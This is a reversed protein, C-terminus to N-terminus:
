LAKFGTGILLLGLRQELRRQDMLAVRDALSPYTATGAMM